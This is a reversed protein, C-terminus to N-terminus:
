NRGMLKMSMDQRLEIRKKFPASTPIVIRFSEIVPYTKSQNIASPSLVLQFPMFKITLLQHIIQQQKKKAHTQKKFQAQDIDIQRPSPTQNAKDETSTTIWPCQELCTPKMSKYSKPTKILTRTKIMHCSTISINHIKSTPITEMRLIRSLQSRAVNPPSKM